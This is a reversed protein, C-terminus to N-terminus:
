SRLFAPPGRPAATLDFRQPLEAATPLAPARTASPPLLNPLWAISALWPSHGLLGCYGCAEMAMGDHDTAGPPMPAHMDECDAHPSSTAVSTLTRSVLPAVITLGIALFALWTFCSRLIRRHSSPKADAPHRAYEM